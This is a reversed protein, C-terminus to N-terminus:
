RAPAEFVLCTTTAHAYLKGDAGVIRAEATALQRGAHLVTGIARLPGSKHSAARVINVGLEATTYGRGVPLMTHVACGLASDLLTAYWGGHVSGLPNYHKLQPKGQFVARGEGVEVLAFDMTDAIHPYPLLGELMAQMQQLGNMGALQATDALGPGAGSRLRARTEDFHRIWDAQIAEASM